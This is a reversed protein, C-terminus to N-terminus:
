RGLARGAALSSQLEAESFWKGHLMVGERRFVNEVDDLPNATLLVLDAFKGETVTGSERITGLFLAPNYTAAQLVEFPTLGAAYLEEFENKMAFGPVVCPVLDDTGVLVPVRADRLGRTLRQMVRFQARLKAIKEVPWRAVYPNDPPRWASTSEAPMYHMEPRQLVGDIDAVQSIIQHFVYLTPSVFTGALKTRASVEKVMRDIELPDTPLDRHFQFFSYLYEEAHVILAQHGDLVVDIGLNSPTHGVVRLGQERATDLLARYAEQSLDGHVKLFDYGARKEAIVEDRVEQPTTFTPQHIFPGLSYAHESEFFIGATYLKPGLVKGEELDTRLRLIEPSGLMNIATTVGNALMFSLLREQVRRDDPKIGPGYLHAHSDVLGPILFHNRGDIGFCSRPVSVDYADGVREIRDGRVLVTQDVLLREVDTSVVTVHTFARCGGTASALAGASQEKSASSVESPPHFAPNVDPRPDPLFGNRNPMRVKPLSNKDLVTEDIIGNVYLIFATLAYTEDPTLSGPRQYPMARRVYDWVTTAYPWYSGVTLVAEKDKLTYRGGALAPYEGVGQGRDGHCNACLSKYLLRGSEVSGQGSPLGTGDPAVSIDRQRIEAETAPRGLKYELTQAAALAPGCALVVASLIAKRNM